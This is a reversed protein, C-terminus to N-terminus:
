AQLSVSIETSGWTGKRGDTSTKTFAKTRIDEAATAASGLEDTRTKNQECWGHTTPVAFRSATQLTFTKNMLKKQEDNLIASGM